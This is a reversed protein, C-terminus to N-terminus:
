TLSFQKFYFQINAYFHNQSLHGVFTLIGYFGVLWGNRDIHREKPTEQQVRSGERLVQFDESFKSGFGKNLGGPYIIRIGNVM